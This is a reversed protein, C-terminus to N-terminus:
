NNAFRSNELIYSKGGYTVHVREQQAQLGVNDALEFIIEMVKKDDDYIPACHEMSVEGEIRAAPEYDGVSSGDKMKYAYVSNSPIVFGSFYYEGKDARGKQWSVYWRKVDELTFAQSSKDYGPRLGLDIVFRKTPQENVKYEM